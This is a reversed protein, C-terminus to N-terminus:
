THEQGAASSHSPFIPELHESSFATFFDENLNDSIDETSSIPIHQRSNAWAKGHVVAEHNNAPIM